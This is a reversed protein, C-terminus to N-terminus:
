AHTLAAARERQAVADAYIDLRPTGPGTRTLIETDTMRRKDFIQLAAIDLGRKQPIPSRHLAM